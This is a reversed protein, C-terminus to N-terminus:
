KPTRLFKGLIEQNRVEPHFLTGYINKSKHKILQICLPSKAWVEFDAKPELCISHLSYAKFDGSFLPNEKVTSVPTMGIELCRRLGMGYVVGITQMGACIGLTPKETEKLWQFKDPQSLTATDKLPTGSLIIVECASLDEITLDLYHKVVWKDLPKIVEIIPLVFEFYGLSDKKCNMDVILIM